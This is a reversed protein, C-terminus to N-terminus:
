IQKELRDLSLRLEDIIMQRALRENPEPTEWEFIRLYRDVLKEADQDMELRYKALEVAENTQM